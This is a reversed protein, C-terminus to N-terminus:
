ESLGYLRARQALSPDLALAAQMEARGEEVQGKKVKALGKGYMPSAARPQKKLADEYDSIAKDYQGMRFYVLGRSDLTSSNASYRVAANCDALAQDLERNGLARAYCRGNLIGPNREDKPHAALWASYQAVAEDALGVRLYDTGIRVGITDAADAAKSAADFDAKARAINRNALFMEGRNLLAMVHDPKLKLTEDYDAIAMLPQRAAQHAAARQYFYEANDPRIAIAKTLDAVAGAYDRRAASAAARRAL